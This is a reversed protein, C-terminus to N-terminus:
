TTFSVYNDDLDMVAINTSTGQHYTGSINLYHYVKQTVQAVRYIYENKLTDTKTFNFKELQQMNTLFLPGVSPTNPAYIDFNNFTM